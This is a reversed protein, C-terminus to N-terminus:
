HSNVDEEVSQELKGTAVELAAVETSGAECVDIVCANREAEALSACKEKAQPLLAPNCSAPDIPAVNKVEAAAVGPAAESFVSESNAVAEGIGRARLAPTIDDDPDCNFNGCFGDQQGPLKRSEIVANMNDPGLLCYIKMDITPLDFYFSPLLGSTGGITHRADRHFNTPDMEDFKAILKGDPSSFESPYSQLIRQGDWFVKFGTKWGPPGTYVAALRHGLLKGRVAVGTMSTAHPFRQTFGFRAMVHLGDAKILQFDGSDYKNVTSDYVRDFTAVHPDGLLACKGWPRATLVETIYEGGPQCKSTHIEKKGACVGGNEKFLIGECGETKYCADRCDQLSIGQLNGSLAIDQAGEGFCNLKCHLIEDKPPTEDCCTAPSCAGGLCRISSPLTDAKAEFGEPCTFSSCDPLTTTPPRTTTPEDCCLETDVQPNCPTGSCSHSTPDPKPLLPAPCALTSCDAPVPEPAQECCTETDEPGCETTKCVLDPADPRRVKGEPCTMTSCEAPPVAPAIDHEGSPECCTDLDSAATCIKSACFRGSPGPKSIYEDPCKFEACNQVMECCTNMDEWDLCVTGKCRIAQANMVQVRDLPCIMTNCLAPPVDPPPPTTTTPEAECCTLLDDRVDCEVSSCLRSTPNRVLMYLEPCAFSDCNARMACCKETDVEQCVPGECHEESM